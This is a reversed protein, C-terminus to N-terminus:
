SNTCFLAYCGCLIHELRLTACDAHIVRYLELEKFVIDYMNVNSIHPSPFNIWIKALVGGLPPNIKQPNSISFFRLSSPIFTLCKKKMDKRVKCQFAYHIYFTEEIFISILKM